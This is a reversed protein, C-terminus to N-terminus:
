LKDYQEKISERDPDQGTATSELKPSALANNEM